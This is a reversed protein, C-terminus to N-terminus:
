KMNDVMVKSSLCYRNVCGAEKPNESIRSRLEKLAPDDELKSIANLTADIEWSISYELIIKVLNTPMSQNKDLQSDVIRQVVVPDMEDATSFLPGEPSIVYFMMLYRVKTTEGKLNSLDTIKVPLTNSFVVAGGPPLDVDTQLDPNVRQGFKLKLPEEESDLRIMATAVVGEIVGEIHWDLDFSCRPQIQIKRIRTVVQLRGPGNRQQEEFKEETLSDNTSIISAPNVGLENLMPFVNAFIRSIVNYLKQYKKKMPLDHIRSHIVVKGTDAQYEFASPTWEFKARNTFFARMRYGRLDKMLMSWRTMEMDYHSRAANREKVIQTWEDPLRPRIQVDPDVIDVIAQSSSVKHKEQQLLDLTEFFQQYKEASLKIKPKFWILNLMTHGHLMDTKISYDEAVRVYGPSRPTPIKLQLLASGDPHKNIAHLDVYKVKENEINKPILVRSMVIQGDQRELDHDYIHELWKWFLHSDPCGGATAMKGLAWIPTEGIKPSLVEVWERLVGLKTEGKSKYTVFSLEDTIMM